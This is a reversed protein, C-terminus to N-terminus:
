PRESFKRERTRKVCGSRGLAQAFLEVQLARRTEESLFAALDAVSVSWESIKNGDEDTTERGKISNWPGSPDLNARTADTM